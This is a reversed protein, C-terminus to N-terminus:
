VGKKRRRCRSGVARDIVPVTDSNANVFSRRADIKNQNSRFPNQHEVTRKCLHITKARTSGQRSSPSKRGKEAKEKKEKPADVQSVSTQIFGPHLLVEGPTPMIKFGRPIKRPTKKNQAGWFM